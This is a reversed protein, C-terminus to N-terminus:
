FAEMRVQFRGDPDTLATAYLLGNMDRIEILSFGVGAGVSTIRGEVREGRTMLVSGPTGTPDVFLHTVALDEGPPDVTLAVPNPPLSLTFRGDAATATSHIYEDFGLERANVAAGSVPNGDGDVAVSNFEVRKPLELQGLDIDNAETGVSFTVESPAWNTDYAPILEATWTGPLLSRNFLGDGDTETDIQLTGESNTLQESTLRIRVDRIPEIRDASLVQGYVQAVALDGLDIDMQAGEEALVSLREELRPIARGTQGQAVLSYDGPQARLLYRGDEDTQVSAGSTGTESHVLHVNIGAVPAGTDRTIKGYVPEGYGLDIDGLDVSTEFDANVMSQFPLNQGDHPVISMTYGRAPPVSLTFAGDDSTLVASGSITGERVLSVTALVPTNDAGPVEAGYPTATYGLVRGSIRVSPLVDIELAGWETDASAIWSQRDLWPTTEGPIIDVRLQNTEVDLEAGGPSIAAANKLAMEQSACSALLLLTLAIM